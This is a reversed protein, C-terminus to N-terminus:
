DELAIRICSFSNKPLTLASAHGSWTQIEVERQGSGAMAANGGNSAALRDNAVFRHVVEGTYREGDIFIELPQESGTRHSVFVFLAKGARSGIVGAQIGPLAIGDYEIAGLLVPANAIEVSFRTEASSFAEGILQFIPYVARRVTAGVDEAPDGGHHWTTGPKAPTVPSFVPFGKRIGALVHFNAHTVQPYGTLLQLFFDGAYMAHLQTNAVRNAPNAINWETIWMEKDPFLKEYYAFGKPVSESIWGMLYGRMEEPLKERMAKYAYVHVTYADFFDANGALVSDWHRQDAKAHWGDQHFGIPSAPVSVKISPDVAKMAEAHQKAVHLYAAATPYKERYQPLYFENGLEWHKVTYGKAQSYRVWDASEEPSGTWLNVVVVPTIHLQQCLAMFDDFVLKGARRKKLTALSGRLRRSLRESTTSSLEAEVFGSQEWRYFNGVTGGPFRLTQPALAKTLELVDTDQYGYDGRMMNTNFGHLAHRLPEPTDTSITLRVPASLSPFVCLYFLSFCLWLSSVRNM